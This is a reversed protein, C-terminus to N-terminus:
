RRIFDKLQEPATISEAKKKALREGLSLKNGEGGPENIITASPTGGFHGSGKIEKEFLYDDSKKIAEIQENLGIINDNDLTLKDVDLLSKLVKPNKANYSLLKSNLAIDFMQKKYEAEQKSLAQQNEEQMTTLKTKLEENDRTLPELDKIQKDRAM